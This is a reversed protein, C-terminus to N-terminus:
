YVKLPFGIPSEAQGIMVGYPKLVRRVQKFFSCAYLDDAVTDMDLLDAIVLDFQENEFQKITEKENGGIIKVKDNAFTERFQEFYTAVISM